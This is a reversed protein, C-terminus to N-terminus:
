PDCSRIEQLRSLFFIRSQQHLSAKRSAFFSFLTDHLTCFLPHSIEFQKLYRM